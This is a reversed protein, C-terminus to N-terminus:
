SFLNIKCQQASEATMFKSRLNQMAFKLTMKYIEFQRGARNAYFTFAMQCEDNWQEWLRPSLVINESYLPLTLTLYYKVLWLDKNVLQRVFDGYIKEDKKFYSMIVFSKQEEPFVTIFLRNMMKSKTNRIRKGNLDYDLAICSFNAFEIAGPIELVQTSLVDFNRSILATDFRRKLEDMEKTKLAMERFNRVVVPERLLSPCEKFNNVFVKNLVLQKYYEFIFAKYAYLFKHEKSKKDFPQANKEIPAFVEDDHIDCFCTSTTAHNVGVRDILTIIEPEEGEIPIIMPPKKPNLMYVHGDVALQSIIKNNQLAHAEKIHKVCRTKDPYLCCKILAKHMKESVQVEIPKKSKPTPKDNRHQCCDSYLKGSECPCKEDPYIKYNIFLRLAKM